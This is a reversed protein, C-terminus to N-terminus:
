SVSVTRFQEDPEREILNVLVGDPDRLTVERQSRHPMRFLTPETTMSAQASRAAAIARDIDPVYFVVVAEGARPTLSTAAPMPPLPPNSVEFLGLMGFNATDPRKLIRCRVQSSEPIHLTAASSPGDLDGEFYVETLGLARYFATARALDSVMLAARVLSSIPPTM